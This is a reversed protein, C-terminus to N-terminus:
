TNRHLPGRTFQDSRGHATGEGDQWCRARAGQLGAARKEPCTRTPAHRATSSVLHLFSLCKVVFSSVVTSHFNSMAEGSMVSTAAERVLATGLCVPTSIKTDQWEDKRGPDASCSHQVCTQLDIRWAAHNKALSLASPLICEFSNTRM